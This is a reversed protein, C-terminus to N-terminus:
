KVVLQVNDFQIMQAAPPGYVNTSAKIRLINRININRDLNSPNYDYGFQSLNVEITEWDCTEKLFSYQWNVSGDCCDNQGDVLIFNLTTGPTNGCNVDVRLFV